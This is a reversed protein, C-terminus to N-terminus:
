EFSVEIADANGLLDALERTDKAQQKFRNALEPVTAADKDFTEAACRLATMLLNQQADNLIM